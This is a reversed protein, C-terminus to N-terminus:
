FIEPLIRFVFYYLDFLLTFMGILWIFNYVPNFLLFENNTKDINEFKFSLLKLLIIIVFTICIFFPCLAVGCLIVFYSLYFDKIIIDYIIAIILSLIFITYFPAVIHTWKQQKLKQYINALKNM